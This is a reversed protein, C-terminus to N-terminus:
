LAKNSYPISRQSSRSSNLTGISIVEKFILHNKSNLFLCIFHEKRITVCTQSSYTSFTKLSSRIIHQNQNPFTLVKALKLMAIIQRAKGKGIGKITVLQQETVDMLETTTHFRQFLEQITYSHSNERLSKLLLKRLDRREAQEM